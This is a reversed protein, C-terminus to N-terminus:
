RRSRRREIVAWGDSSLVHLELVREDDLGGGVLDPGGQEVDLPNGRAHRTRAHELLGALVGVLDGHLHLDPRHGHVVHAIDLDELAVGVSVARRHSASAGASGSREAALGAGVDLFAGVDEDAGAAGSCASPGL